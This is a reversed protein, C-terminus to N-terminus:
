ASAREWRPGKLFPDLGVGRIRDHGVLFGTKRYEKRGVVVSPGDGAEHQDGVHRRPLDGVIVLDDDHVVPAGVVGALQQILHGRGMRPQTHDVVLLIPAVAPRETGPKAFALLSSM